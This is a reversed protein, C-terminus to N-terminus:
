SARVLDQIPIVKAVAPTTAPPEQRQVLLLFMKGIQLLDAHDIRRREIMGTETKGSEDSQPNLALFTVEFL